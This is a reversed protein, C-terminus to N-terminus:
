PGPPGEELAAHAADPTSADIGLAQLVARLTDPSAPQPRGQWDHFEVSVSCAEALQTLVHDYSTSATVPMGRARTSRLERLRVGGAVARCDRWRHARRGM